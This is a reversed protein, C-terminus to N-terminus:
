GEKEEGGLWNEGQWISMVVVILLIYKTRKLIENELSPKELHYNEL